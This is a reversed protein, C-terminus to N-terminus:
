SLLMNLMGCWAPSAIRTGILSLLQLSHVATHKALHRVANVLCSMHNFALSHGQGEAISVACSVHTGCAHMDSAAM